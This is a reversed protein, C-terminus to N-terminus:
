INILHQSLKLSDFATLSAMGFSHSQLLLLVNLSNLVHEQSSLDQHM